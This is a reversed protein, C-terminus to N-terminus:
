RARLDEICFLYLRRSYGASTPLVIPILPIISRVCAAPCACAVGRSAPAIPPGPEAPTGAEPPSSHGLERVPRVSSPKRATAPNKRTISYLTWREFADGNRSIKAKRRMCTNM